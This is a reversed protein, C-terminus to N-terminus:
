KLGQRWTFQFITSIVGRIIKQSFTLKGNVLLNNYLGTTAIMAGVIFANLGKLGTTIGQRLFESLYVQRGNMSENIAYAFSGAVMSANFVTAAMGAVLATKGVLTSAVIFGSVTKGAVALMTAGGTILAGGLAGGILAGSLFGGM